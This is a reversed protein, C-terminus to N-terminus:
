PDQEERTDGWPLEVLRSCRWSGRWRCLDKGTFGYTHHPGSRPAKVSAALAAVGDNAHAGLVLETAPSESLRCPFSNKKDGTVWCSATPGQDARTLQSPAHRM